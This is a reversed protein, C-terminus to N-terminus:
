GYRMFKMTVWTTVSCSVTPMVARKGVLVWRAAPNMSRSSNMRSAWRMTATARGGTIGPADVMGARVPNLEIYRYCTLLYRGNDVVCPKYRGEWLTGTRHCADNIYRVYRRGLAQMMAPISGAAGPTVLLHIHNTMLVCAHIACGAKRSATQLVECYFHYDQESFFCPKRAM